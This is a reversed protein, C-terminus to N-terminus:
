ASLQMSHFNRHADRWSIGAGRTVDMAHALLAAQPSVELQKNAM